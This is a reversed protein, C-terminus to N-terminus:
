TSSELRAKLSNRNLRTQADIEQYEVSLTVDREAVGFQGVMADMLAGALRQKDDLSRGQLFRGTVAVFKNEPRQDAIVYHDHVVLRTRLADLSAVGSSIAAAHLAQSMAHLDTVDAVNASCEIILHPV